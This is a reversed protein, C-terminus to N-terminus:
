SNRFVGYGVFGIQRGNEDWGYFPLMPLEDDPLITIKLSPDAKELLFAWLKAMHEADFVNEDWGGDNFENFGLEHLKEFTELDVSDEEYRSCIDHIDIGTVEKIRYHTERIFEVPQNAECKYYNCKEHGDCSWDGIPLHFLYKKEYEDELGFHSKIRRCYDGDIVGANSMYESVLLFIDYLAADEEKTMREAPPAQAGDFVGSQLDIGTSILEYANNLKEVTAKKM